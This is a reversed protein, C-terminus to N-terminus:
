KRVPIAVGIKTENEGKEIKIQEAKTGMKRMMLVLIILGLGSGEMDDITDAIVKELAKYQKGMEIKDMMRKEEIMTIRANNTVEIKIKKKEKWLKLQIYLGHKEQLTLYYDKKEVIDTKFSKMGELYDESCHIDLGKEDFYVRKTNAKKANKMLEKVFDVVYDTIAEQQVAKLFITLVQEMYQEMARPFTPTILIIPQESHVLTRIHEDLENASLNDPVTM